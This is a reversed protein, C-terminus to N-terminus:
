QVAGSHYKRYLDEAAENVRMLVRDLRERYLMDADSSEGWRTKVWLDWATSAWCRVDAVGNEIAHKDACGRLENLMEVSNELEITAQKLPSPAAGKPAVKPMPRANARVTANPM